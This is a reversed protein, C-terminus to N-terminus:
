SKTGLPPVPPVALSFGRESCVQEGTGEEKLLSCPFLNRPALSSHKDWSHFNQSRDRCRRRAICSKRRQPQRLFFSTLPAPGSGIYITVVLTLKGKSNRVAASSAPLSLTGTDQTTSCDLFDRVLSGM